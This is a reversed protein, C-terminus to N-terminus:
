FPWLKNVARVFWGQRVTNDIEGKGWLRVTLDGVKSSPVQNNTDIDPPRITGVLTLVQHERNIMLTKQGALVLDGNPLVRAVRATITAVLSNSRNTDGEGSFSSSFSTNLLNNLSFRGTVPNTQELGLASTVGVNANSNRDLETDASNRGSDSETLRITVLDNARFARTDRFLAVGMGSDSWISGASSGRPQMTPLDILHQDLSRLDEMMSPTTVNQKPACGVLALCGLCVTTTLVNRLNM